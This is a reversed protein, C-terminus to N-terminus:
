KLIKVYKMYQVKFICLFMNTLYPLTIHEGIYQRAPKAKMKGSVPLKVKELARYKEMAEKPEM